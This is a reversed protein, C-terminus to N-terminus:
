IGGPPQMAYGSESVNSIGPGKDQLWAVFLLALILVINEVRASHKSLLLSVTSPGSCFSRHAKKEYRLCGTANFFVEPDVVDRSMNSNGDCWGSFPIIVRDTLVPLADAVLEEKLEDTSSLNWLLGPCLCSLCLLAPESFRPVLPAVGLTPELWHSGELYAQGM